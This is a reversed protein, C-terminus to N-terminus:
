VGGFVERLNIEEIVYNPSPRVIKKLVRVWFNKDSFYHTMSHLEQNYGMPKSVTSFQLKGNLFYKAETGHLGSKLIQYIGDVNVESFPLGVKVFRINSSQEFDNEYFYEIQEANHGPTKPNTIDLTVLRDGDLYGAKIVTENDGSQQRYFEFTTKNLQNTDILQFQGNNTLLTHIYAQWKHQNKM